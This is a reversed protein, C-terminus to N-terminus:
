IVEKYKQKTKNDWSKCNLCYYIYNGNLISYVMNSKKCKECVMGCNSKKSIKIDKLRIGLM